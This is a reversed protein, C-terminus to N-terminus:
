QVDEAEWVVRGSTGVPFASQEEFVFRVERTRAEGDAVGVAARFRVPLTADPTNFTLRTAKEIAALETGSVSASVEQEASSLIRLAEEGIGIRQGLQVKREVVEGDFPATLTCRSVMLDETKLRAAAAAIQANLAPIEAEIVKINSYAMRAKAQQVKIAVQAASANAQLSETRANASSLEPQVANCAAQAARFTTEAKDLEQQSIVQRQRLNRARQLDLNALQCQAQDAQSQARIRGADAKAATVSAQAAKAQTDLLSVSSESASMDSQAAAIRAKIGPLKAKLSNLDAEAQERRISFERCDLRAIPEGKKVRDGVDAQISEINAAIEASVWADQLSIIAAPVSNAPLSPPLFNEEGEARASNATFLVWLAAIQLASAPYKKQM